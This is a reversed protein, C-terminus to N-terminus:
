NEPVLMVQLKEQDTPRAGAVKWGMGPLWDYVIHDDLSDAEVYVRPWDNLDDARKFEAGVWEEKIVKVLALASFSM